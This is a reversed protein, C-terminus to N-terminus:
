YLIKSHFFFSYAYLLVILAGNDCPKWIKVHPRGTKSIIYKGPYYSLRPNLKRFVRFIAVLQLSTAQNKFHFHSFILQFESSYSIIKDVFTKNPVTLRFLLNQSLPFTDTKDVYKLKNENKSLLRKRSYTWSVCVM